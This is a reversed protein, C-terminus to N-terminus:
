KQSFSFGAERWVAPRQTACGTGREGGGEKDETTAAAAATGSVGAAGEAAASGM